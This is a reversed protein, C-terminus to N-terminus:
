LSDGSDMRGETTPSTSRLLLSASCCPVSFAVLLFQALGFKACFISALLERALQEKARFMSRARSRPVNNGAGGARLLKWVM